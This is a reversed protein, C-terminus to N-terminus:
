LLVCAVRGRRSVNVDMQLCGAIMQLIITYM